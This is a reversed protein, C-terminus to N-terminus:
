ASEGGDKKSFLGYITIVLRPFVLPIVMTYVNLWSLKISAFIVVAILLMRLYYNGMAALKAENGTKDINKQIHRATLYFNLIACICGLLAGLLMATNLQWAILIVVAEVVGLATVGIAVKKVERLLAKDM